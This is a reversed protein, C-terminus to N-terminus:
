WPRDGYQRHIGAVGGPQEPDCASFARRSRDSHAQSHQASVATDRSEAGAAIPALGRFCHGPAISFFHLAAAIKRHELLEEGVVKEVMGWLGAARRVFVARSLEVFDEPGRKGVKVSVDMPLKGIAVAHRGVLGIVARMVSFEEAHRRGAAFNLELSDIDHPHLIALDTLM